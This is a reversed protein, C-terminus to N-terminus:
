PRFKAKIEALAGKVDFEFFREVDVDERQMFRYSGDTALREDRRKENAASREALQLLHEYDDPVVIVGDADGFIIDGPQVVAGGCEIPIQVEGNTGLIQCTVPSFGDCFVPFGLEELGIRDTAPGDVVLGALGRHEMMLALWDGASAFTDDSGRDVVIVSGKPAKMIGYFLATIDRETMRVTYAEGVMKFSPLIPKIRRHMFGRSIHHGFAATSVEMFRSRVDQSLKAM